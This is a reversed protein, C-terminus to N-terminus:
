VDAAGTARATEILWNVDDEAVQEGRAVRTALEVARVECLAHTLGNTELAPALQAAFGLMEETRGLESLLVPCNSELHADFEVLGRQQCFVIAEEFAALSATPGQLPYRAIAHNNRLSAADRGAGQEVLLPLAREM